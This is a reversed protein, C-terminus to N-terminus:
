WLLWGVLYVVFCELLQCFADVAMLHRFGHLSWVCFINSIYFYAARTSNVGAGSVPPFTGVVWCSLARVWQVAAIDCGRRIWKSLVLLAGARACWGCRWRSSEIFVARLLPARCDLGHGFHWGGPFRTTIDTWDPLAGSYWLFNRCLWIALPIQEREVRVLLQKAPLPTTMVKNDDFYTEPVMIRIISNECGWM